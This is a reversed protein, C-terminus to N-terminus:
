LGYGDALILISSSFVAAMVGFLLLLAYTAIGGIYRFKGSVSMLLTCIIGIVSSFALCIGATAMLSLTMRGTKDMLNQTNSLVYLLLLLLCMAFFFFSVRKMLIIVIPKKVPRAIKM